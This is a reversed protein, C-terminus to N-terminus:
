LEVKWEVTKGVLLEYKDVKRVVGGWGACMNKDADIHAHMSERLPEISGSDFASREDHPCLM